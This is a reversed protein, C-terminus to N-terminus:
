RSLTGVKSFHLEPLQHQSSMVRRSIKQVIVGASKENESKRASAVEAVGGGALELGSWLTFKEQTPSLLVESWTLLLCQADQITVADTTAITVKAAQHVAGGQNSRGWHGLWQRGSLAGTTCIWHQADGACRAVRSWEKWIAPHPAICAFCRPIRYHNYDVM